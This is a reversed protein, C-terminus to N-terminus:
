CAGKRSEPLLHEPKPWVLESDMIVSVSANYICLFQAPTLLENSRLLRRILDEPVILEPVNGLVSDAPRHPLEKSVKQIHMGLKLLVTVCESIIKEMPEGKLTDDLRKATINLLIYEWHQFLRSPINHSLVLIKPELLLAREQQQQMDRLDQIVSFLVDSSSELVHIVYNPYLLLLGTIGEQHTRQLKQLFGEYYGGLDRKDALEPTVRALFILRHLLCKKRKERRKAQLLMLLSLGAEYTMDDIEVRFSRIRRKTKSAM